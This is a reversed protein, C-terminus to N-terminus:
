ASRFHSSSGSSVCAGVVETIMLASTSSSQFKNNNYPPQPTTGATESCFAKTDKFTLLRASKNSRLFLVVVIYGVLGIWFKM